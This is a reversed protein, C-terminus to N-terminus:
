DEVKEWVIPRGKKPCPPFNTDSQLAVKFGYKNKYTGSYSVKEGTKGTISM